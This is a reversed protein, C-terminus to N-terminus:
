ISKWFHEPSDLIWDHGMGKLVVLKSNKILNKLEKGNAPPIMLDNEGWLILTDTKIKKAEYRAELYHAVIALRFNLVPNEATRLFDRVNYAFSRKSHEKLLNQFGKVISESDYIGKSDVLFLRKIKKYQISAFHIALGGGLSHGMLSIDSLDHLDLFKLLNKTFVEIGKYPKLEKYSPVHIEWNLPALDILKKYSKRDRTWGGLVVLNEKIIKPM